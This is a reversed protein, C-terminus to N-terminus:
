QGVIASGLEKATDLMAALSDRHKRIQEIQRDADEITSPLMAQGSAEVALRQRSAWGHRSELCLAVIRSNYKNLLGGRVLRAEQVMEATEMAQHFVPNKASWRSLYEPPLHNQVAWDRLWINNEPDAELWDLLSEAADEIQEDTWKPKRGSRGKVGAM